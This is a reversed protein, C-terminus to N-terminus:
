ESAYMLEEALPEIQKAKEIREVVDAHIIIETVQHKEIDVKTSPFADVIRLAMDLTKQRIFNDPQGEFQPHMASLMEAVKEALFDIDIGKKKLAEQMKLNNGLKRLTQKAQSLNKVEPWAEKSASKMKSSDFGERAMESIFKSQGETLLAKPM